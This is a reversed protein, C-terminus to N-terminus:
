DITVLIQNKEVAIGKKVHIKTIRGDSPSKLINEMKMAELVIVPDGKKVEIGEEIRIDLVLGPMPAKLVNIKSAAAADMGLEKLLADYRDSLQLKYVNGNVKVDMTKAEKDIFLAEVEYSRNNRLIHFRNHGTSVLDWQVENGDLFAKGKEVTVDYEKQNNIKIKLM